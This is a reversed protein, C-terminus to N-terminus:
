DVLHFDYKINAHRCISVLVRTDASFMDGYIKLTAQQDEQHEAGGCCIGM